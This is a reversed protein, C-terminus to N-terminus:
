KNYPALIFACWACWLARPTSNMTKTFIASSPLGLGPTQGGLLFCGGAIGSVQPICVEYDTGDDGGHCM